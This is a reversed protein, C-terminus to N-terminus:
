TLHEDVAEASSAADFQGEATDLVTTVAALLSHLGKQAYGAQLRDDQLM